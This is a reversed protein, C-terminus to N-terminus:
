ATLAKAQEPTMGSAILRDYIANVRLDSAKPAVIGLTHLVEARTKSQREVKWARIALEHLEKKPLSIIIADFDYDVSVVIGKKPSISATTGIKAIDADTANRELQESTITTKLIPM